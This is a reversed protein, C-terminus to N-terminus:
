RWGGAVSVGWGGALAVPAVQVADSSRPALLWLTVGGAALVGGVVFMVTSATAASRADQRTSYAGAPCADGNCGASNSSSNKSIADFGLATGVGLGVVGVGATVLGVTRWPPSWPRSPASVPVPTTVPVASVPEPELVAPVDLKQGESIAVMSAATRAGPAQVSVNHAGADVRVPQGITVAHGDITATASAAGMGSVVLRVVPVRPTLARLADGAASSAASDGAAQGDSLARSYEDFAAVLRGVHEDAQGLTFHVKPSSRIALVTRLKEAAEGWRGANGLDVAERYLRTREAERDTAAATGQGSAQTQAEAPTSLLACSAVVAVWVARGANGM